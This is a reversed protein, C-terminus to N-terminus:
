DWCELKWSVTGVRVRECGVAGFWEERERNRDRESLNPLEHKSSHKIALSPIQIALGEVTFNM